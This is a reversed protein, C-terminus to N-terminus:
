PDPHVQACWTVDVLKYCLGLEDAEMLVEDEAEIMNTDYLSCKFNTDFGTCETFVGLCEKVHIKVPHLDSYDFELVLTTVGPQLKQLWLLLGGRIAYSAYYTDEATYGYVIFGVTENIDKYTSVIAYGLTDDTDTSNYWLEDAPWESLPTGQHSLSPLSPQSTRAWCAPSYFGDEYGTFVLADTYDNFYEAAVNVLPGGVVIINSSSVAYPYIESGDWDDPTSWDDKFATRNDGVAPDYYYDLKDRFAESFRRMIYPHAPAYDDDRMDIASLWLEKNKWEQWAASIMASGASDSALSSKGIVTWEWRGTTWPKTSRESLETSYLIKYRDYDGYNPIEATNLIVSWSSIDYQGPRSLLITPRGTGGEVDMLLVKESDECYYGWKEPVILLHEGDLCTRDNGYKDHLHAALDITSAIPGKQAWRFAGKHSANYLDYPNFIENLQYQVERDIRFDGLEDMNPDMANNNDTLGYVSVCRFQHTSCEPDDYSLDFDWEGMVYPVKPEDYMGYSVTPDIAFLDDPMCDLPTIEEHKIQGMRERKFLVLFEDPFNFNPYPIVVHMDTADNWYWTVNQLVQKWDGDEKRFVWPDSEWEGCGRPYDIAKYPLTIVIDRGSYFVGLPLPDESTPPLEVTHIYTELSSLVDERYLVDTGAVWKSVLSPWFAAFGVYEEDESIIQCLDFNASHNGEPYYFPHKYYKTSLDNYFEAYSRSNVSTGLDWEGRESFEIQFPSHWKDNDVRKIDKIEIVYKKVKNFVLQITLEVMPSGDMMPDKDYITTTLLYISKRPGNFIVRIDDTEAYGSTRRGGHVDGPASADVSQQMQRWDGGIGTDDSWDTYLAYAWVNMLCGQEVYHIDMVWGSSWKREPVYANAFVDIGDYELGQPVDPNVLEGYKSFGIDLSKKEWPYLVYTDNHLLGYDAIYEESGPISPPVGAIVIPLFSLISSLLILCVLSLSKLADKKYYVTVQKMANGVKLIYHFYLFIYKM